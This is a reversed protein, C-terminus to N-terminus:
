KITQLNQVMKLIFKRPFLPLIWNIAFKLTNETIVILKGKEMAVYGKRATSEASKASKFLGSGEMGAAKEFETQVPGPCIATLTVGDNCVEQALAQTFSNVYAKTAFYVAQMPGPMFGATSATNLVKGSKRKVMEPLFLHTLETLAIINLQIMDREKKLDREHFKGYGGLGANNFLYEVEINKNKISTFLEQAANEKMLDMPIVEVQVNYTAELETKLKMLEDVRRAVLVLDRGKSAHIKALELGIGSSAGTILGVNKM